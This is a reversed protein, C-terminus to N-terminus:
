RYLSSHRAYLPREVPDMRLFQDYTDLPKSQYPVSLGSILSGSYAIDLILAFVLWVSLTM